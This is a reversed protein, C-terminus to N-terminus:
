LLQGLLAEARARQKALLTRMSALQAAEPTQSDPRVSNALLDDLTAGVAIVSYLYGQDFQSESTDALQAVIDQGHMVAAEWAGSQTHKSTCYRALDNAAQDLEQDTERALASVESSHARAVAVRTVRAAVAQVEQLLLAIEERQSAPRTWLGLLRAQGPQATTLEASLGESNKGGCASLWLLTLSVPLTRLRVLQAFLNWRRGMHVREALLLGAFARM